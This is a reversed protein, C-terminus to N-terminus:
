EPKKIIVGLKYIVDILLAKKKFTKGYKLRYIRTPLYLRKYSNNCYGCKTINQTLNFFIITLLNLAVYKENREEVGGVVMKVIIGGSSM